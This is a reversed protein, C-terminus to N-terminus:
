VSTKLSEETRRVAIGIRALDDESPMRKMHKVGLLNETSLPFPVHLAEIIKLMKLTLGMPMPVFFCKKNLEAALKTFVERIELGNPEAVVVTGTLQKEIALGIARCLDDIHITQLIQHGGDFIPVIGLKRTSKKMRNFTGTEGPGIVLGPRVILDKSSDMMQELAFKSKGYYSEADPHAAISSIFVFQSIGGRRSMEYIKLTGVHNVRYAEDMATRQTAYACHVVIDVNDFAATDIEDPLVGKFLKIGSESFSRRDIRRMLANVAYGKRYFYDCLRRGVFGSAGTVLVTKSGPGATV